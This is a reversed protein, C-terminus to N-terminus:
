KQLKNYYNELEGLLEGYENRDNQDLIRNKVDEANRKEILNSILNKIETILRKDHNSLLSNYKDIIDNLTTRGIEKYKDTIEYLEEFINIIEWILRLKGKMDERITSRRTMKNRNKEALKKALNLVLQRRDNSLNAYKNMSNATLVEPAPISSQIWSGSPESLPPLRIKNTIRKKRKPRKPLKPKECNKIFSFIMNMQLKMINSIFEDDFTDNLNLIDFDADMINIIKNYTTKKKDEALENFTKQICSVMQNEDSIFIYPELESMMHELKTLNELDIKSPPTPDNYYNETKVYLDDYYDYLWDKVFNYLNIIIEFTPENTNM